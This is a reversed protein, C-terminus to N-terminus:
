TIIDAVTELKQKYSSGEPWLNAAMQQVEM